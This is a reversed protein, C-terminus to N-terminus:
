NKQEKPAEIRVSSNNFYHTKKEFKSLKGNKFYYFDSVTLAEGSGRFIEYTSTQDDALYVLHAYKNNEKFEVESMGISINHVNQKPIVLNCGIGTSALLCIFIIKKM